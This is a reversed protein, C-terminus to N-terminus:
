NIADRTYVLIYSPKKYVTGTRQDLSKHLLYITSPPLGKRFCDNNTYCSKSNTSNIFEGNFVWKIKNWCIRKQLHNGRISCILEFLDKVELEQEMHTDKSIIQDLVSYNFFKTERGKHQCDYGSMCRM